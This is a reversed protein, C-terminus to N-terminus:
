TGINTEVIRANTLKRKVKAIARDKRRKLYELGYLAPKRRMAWRRVSVKESAFYEQTVVNSIREPSMIEKYSLSEGIFYAPYSEAARMFLTWDSSMIGTLPFGLARAFATTVIGASAHIFNFWYLRAALRPPLIVGERFPQPFPSVVGHNVEAWRDWSLGIRNHKWADVHKSLREPDWYDDSDLLSFLRGRSITAGLKRAETLGTDGRDVFQIRPDSNSLESIEKKEPSPSNDLILLEFDSLSQNLVSSIARQVFASRGRTPMAISIMPATSRNGSKDPM